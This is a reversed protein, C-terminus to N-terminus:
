YTVPDGSQLASLSLLLPKGVQLVLDFDERGLIIGEVSLDVRQSIFDHVQLSKEKGMLVARDALLLSKGAEVHLLHDILAGITSLHVRIAHCTHLLLLLLDHSALAHM